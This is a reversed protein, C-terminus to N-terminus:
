RVLPFGSTVRATLDRDVVFASYDGSGAVIELVEDGGVCLATALADAIALDPGAVSASLYRSRPAADHPDILQDPREYDGSTALAGRLAVVAILRTRDRPDVVGVTLPDGDLDGRSAIDGAANVMAARVAPHELAALAREAAWGKVLGTPDVGGPLAWPDFWGGTMDRVRACLDLVEAVEPPTEGLTVEGRRLRSIPSDPRWTSFVADDGRLSAAAAEVLGEATRDDLGDGFLDVTVVTGMVEIRHHRAADAM